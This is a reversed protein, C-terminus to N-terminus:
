VTVTSIVDVVNVGNNNSIMFTVSFVGLPISYSAADVGVKSYFLYGSPPLVTVAFDGVVMNRKTITALRQGDQYYQNSSIGLNILSVTCPSNFELRIYDHISTNLQTVTYTAGSSTNGFSTFRNAKYNYASYGPVFSIIRASINGTMTGGALPLKTNDTAVINTLGSGNGSIVGPASVTINGTTTINGTVNVTTGSCGISATPYYSATGGAGLLISTPSIRLGTTTNSWTTFTLNQTQSGNSAVMLSDGAHVIGNNQGSGANGVLQMTGGATFTGSVGMAGTVTGGALPLKTIDNINTLGAGNGSISYGGNVTINQTNLAGTLTGGTLPLKTVDTSTVGVLASGNGIFNVASVSSLFTAAGTVKLTTGFEGKGTAYLDGFGQTGPVLSCFGQISVNTPNFGGANELATIRANFEKRMNTYDAVNYDGRTLNELPTQLGQYGWINNSM